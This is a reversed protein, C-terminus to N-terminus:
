HRLRSAWGQKFIMGPLQLTMAHHIFKQCHLAMKLASPGTGFFFRRHCQTLRITLPPISHVYQSRILLMKDTDRFIDFYWKSQCFPGIISNELVGQNEKFPGFVYNGGFTYYDEELHSRRLYTKLWNQTCLRCRFVLLLIYEDRVIYLIHLLWSLQDWRKHEYYWFGSWYLM